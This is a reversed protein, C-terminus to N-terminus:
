RRYQRSQLRHCQLPPFDLWGLLYHLTLYQLRRRRYHHTHFLDLM